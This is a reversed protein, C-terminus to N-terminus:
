EINYKQKTKLLIAKPAIPVGQQSGFIQYNYQLTYIRDILMKLPAIALEKERVAQQIVPLYKKMMTLNSHQIVLWMTSEFKEGVLSKGLYTQHVKYLNNIIAQNEQDLKQQEKQFADYNKHRYKKDNQVVQEMTQLLSKDLNNEKAYTALNFKPKTALTSCLKLRAQYEQPFIEDLQTKDKLTSLYECSGDSALMKHFVIKLLSTSEKLKYFATCINWYDAVNFGKSDNKVAKKTEELVMTAFSFDKDSVNQGQIAEYDVFRTEFNEDTFVINQAASINLFIFFFLCSLKFNTTKM